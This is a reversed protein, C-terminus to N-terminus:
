KKAFIVGYGYICLYGIAYTNFGWESLKTECISKIDNGHYEIWISKISDMDEKSLKFLHIENGEIDCKIADIKNSSILNIIKEPSDINDCIFECNDIKCSNYYDIEQQLIDVGILKLAGHKSFYFPTTEEANMVSWRGCGLDLISKDKIDCESWHESSEESKIIFQKIM